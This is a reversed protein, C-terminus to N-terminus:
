DLLYWFSHLVLGVFGGVLTGNIRIFQLDRGVQLEIRQATEEADWNRVTETIVGALSSQYRDVLHLLASRCGDNVDGNLSADELLRDGFSGVSETLASRLGSEADALQTDLYSSLDNVLRSLYGQLVPHDMLTDKLAEGRQILAPDTKLTEILKELSEILRVRAREDDVVETEELYDEIEALLRDVIKRDVFGPLWWPTRESISAQLSTRNQDLQRRALALLENVVTQDPDRLLVMDLIDAVLPALRIQRMAGGISRKTADRLGRNEAIGLLRRLMAALDGGLRKTNKEERVWGGIMAAFNIERIRPELAASTLFHDGVFRALTAGIDDKRRQIIATHPIPVGLPHRFLATVAFWDALAGVTAAEAFAHVFPLVPHLSLNLGTIVYVSFMFLLLALAILKM